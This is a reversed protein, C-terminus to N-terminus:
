LMVFHHKNTQQQGKENNCIERKDVKFENVNQDDSVNLKSWNIVDPLATKNSCGSMFMNIEDLSIPRNWANFNTMWGDYMGVFINDFLKDSRVNNEINLNNLPVLMVGNVTISSKDISKDIVICFSYWNDFSAIRDWPWKFYLLTVGTKLSVLRKQYDYLILSVYDSYFMWRENWFQFKARLCISLGLSLDAIKNPYIKPFTTFNVSKDFRMGMLYDSCLVLPVVVAILGIFPILNIKAM